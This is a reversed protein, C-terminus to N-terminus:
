ENFLEIKKLNTRIEDIDLCSYSIEKLYNRAAEESKSEILCKAMGVAAETIAQRYLTIAKEFLTTALEANDLVNLHFWALEVIAPIFEADIELAQKFTNEIDTLQYHTENNLLQLCRGKWVLIEPHLVGEREASEILRLTEQYQGEQYKNKIDLLSVKM